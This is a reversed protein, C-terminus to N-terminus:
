ESLGHSAKFEELCQGFNQSNDITYSTVYEFDKGDQDHLKDYTFSEANASTCDSKKIGHTAYQEFHALCITTASMVDGALVSLAIKTSDGNDAGENLMITFPIENYNFSVKDASKNTVDIKYYEVALDVEAIDHKVLVNYPHM